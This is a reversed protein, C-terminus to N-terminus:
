NGKPMIMTMMFMMIGMPILAMMSEIMEQVGSPMIWFLAAGILPLGILAALIGGLILPWASVEYKQWAIYLVPEAPDTFALASYGPWPLLGAAALESNLEGLAASDVAEEFELQALMLSGPAAGQELASFEGLDDLSTATGLLYARYGPPVVAIMTKEEFL